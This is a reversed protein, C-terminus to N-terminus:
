GTSPRSPRGSLMRRTLEAAPRGEEILMRLYRLQAKHHETRAVRELMRTLALLRKDTIHSAILPLTHSAVYRLVNLRAGSFSM